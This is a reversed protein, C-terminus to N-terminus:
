FPYNITPLKPFNRAEGIDQELKLKKAKIKSPDRPSSILIDRSFSYCGGLSVNGIGRVLLIVPVQAPSRLVICQRSMCMEILMACAKWIGSWLRIRFKGHMRHQNDNDDDSDYRAVMIRCGVIKWIVFNCFTANIIHNHCTMRTHVEPYQIKPIMDMSFNRYIWIRPLCNLVLRSRPHWAHMTNRICRQRRRVGLYSGLLMRARGTKAAPRSM